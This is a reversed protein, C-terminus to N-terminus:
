IQKRQHYKERQKRLIEERNKEYYRKRNNNDIVRRKEPNNAKWDKTYQAARAPDNEYRKQAYAKDCEKCSGRRGDATTPHAYYDDLEKWKNCRICVKGSM